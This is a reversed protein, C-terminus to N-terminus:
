MSHRDRSECKLSLLWGSQGCETTPQQGCMSVCQHQLSCQARQLVKSPAVCLTHAGLCAAPTTVAEGMTRAVGLCTMQVLDSGHM